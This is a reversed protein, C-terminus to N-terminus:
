FSIVKDSKLVSLFEVIHDRLPMVEQPCYNALTYIIDVSLKRKIWDNDTLFDLVKYLTITSFPKFKHEAAFILSILCDLLESAAEFEKQELFYMVNEWINNM